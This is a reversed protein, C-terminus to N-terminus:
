QILQGVFDQQQLSHYKEEFTQPDHLAKTARWYLMGVGKQTQMSHQMYRLWLEHDEAGYADM